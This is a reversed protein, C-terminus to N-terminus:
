PAIFQTEGAKVEVFVERIIENIELYISEGSLAGDIQATFSVGDTITIPLEGASQTTVSAYLRGSFRGSVAFSDASSLEGVPTESQRESLRTDGCGAFLLAILFLLLRM